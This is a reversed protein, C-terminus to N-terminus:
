SSGSKINCEHEVTASQLAEITRPPHTRRPQALVAAVDPAAFAPLPM